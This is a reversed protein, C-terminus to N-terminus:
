TFVWVKPYEQNEKSNGILSKVTRRTMGNKRLWEKATDADIFQGVWTGDPLWVSRLSYLAHAFSERPESTM